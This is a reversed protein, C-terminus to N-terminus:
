WKQTGIATELWSARGVGNFGNLFPPRYFADPEAQLSEAFTVRPSAM